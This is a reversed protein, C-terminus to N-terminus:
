LSCLLCVSPFNHSPVPFAAVLRAIPESLLCCQHQELCKGVLVGAIHQQGESHGWPFAMGCAFIRTNIAQEKGLFYQVPCSPPTSKLGWQPFHLRRNLEGTSIPLVKLPHKINPPIHRKNGPRPGSFSKWGLLGWLNYCRGQQHVPPVYHHPFDMRGM